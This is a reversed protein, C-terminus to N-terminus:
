EFKTSSVNEILHGVYLELIFLMEKALKALKWITCLHFWEFDKRVQCRLLLTVMLLNKPQSGASKLITHDLTDTPVFVPLISFDKNFASDDSPFKGLSASADNEVEANSCNIGNERLKALKAKTFAKNPDPDFVKERVEPM